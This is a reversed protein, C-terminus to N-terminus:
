YSRKERELERERERNVLVSIGRTWSITSKDRLFGGDGDGDNRRLKLNFVSDLLHKKEKRRKKKKNLPNSSVILTYPDCSDHFNRTSFKRIKKAPRTVAPNLVM